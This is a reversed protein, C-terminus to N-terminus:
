CVVFSVVFHFGRGIVVFLLLIARIMGDDSVYAPAKIGRPLCSLVCGAAIATNDM